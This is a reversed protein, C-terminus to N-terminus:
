KGWQAHQMLSHKVAAVVAVLIRCATQPDVQLTAPCLLGPARALGFGAGVHHIGGGWGSAFGIAQLLQLHTTTPM